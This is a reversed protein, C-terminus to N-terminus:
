MREMEEEPWLSEQIIKKDARRLAIFAMPGSSHYIAQLFEEIAEGTISNTYRFLDEQDDYWPSFHDYMEMRVNAEPYTKSSKETRGDSYEKLTTATVETTGAQKYFDALYKRGADSLGIYQYTRM